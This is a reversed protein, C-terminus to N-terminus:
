DETKLFRGLSDRPATGLYAATMKRMIAPHVKAEGTSKKWGRLTKTVASKTTRPRPRLKREISVIVPNGKRDTAAFERTETRAM